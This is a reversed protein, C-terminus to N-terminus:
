DIKTVKPGSCDCNLVKPGNNMLKPVASRWIGQDFFSFRFFKKAFKLSPKSCVAKEQNGIAAGVSIALKAAWHM